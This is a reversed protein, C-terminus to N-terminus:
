DYFHRFLLAAATWGLFGAVPVAWVMVGGFQLGVLLSISLYWVLGIIYCSWGLAQEYDMM